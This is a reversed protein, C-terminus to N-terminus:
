RLPTSMIEADTGVAAGIKGGGEFNLSAWDDFGTLEDPPEDNNLRM